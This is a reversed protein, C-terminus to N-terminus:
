IENGWYDWTGDYYIHNPHRSFLELKSQSPFMKNIMVGIEFPKASHRGKRRKFMQKITRSGRPKPISGKKGILCFECSSNTYNGPNTRGIKEWVFGVTIYSFGWASLLGIAEELTPGTTWLFLLCDNDTVEVIPLKKLDETTMVPYHDECSTLKKKNKFGTSGHSMRERYLWPPDAYIIQYKKDLQFLDVLRDAKPVILKRTGVSNM